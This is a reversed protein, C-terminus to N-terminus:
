ILDPFFWAFVIVAVIAVMFVGLIFLARKKKASIHEFFFDDIVEEKELQTKIDEMVMDISSIDGDTSHCETSDNEAENEESYEPRNNEPENILKVEDEAVLKGCYKCFRSNEAIQEGCHMCYM